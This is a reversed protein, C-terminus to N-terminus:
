EEGGVVDVAVSKCFCIYDVTCGSSSCASDVGFWEFSCGRAGERVFIVDCLLSTKETEWWAEGEVVCSRSGQVLM